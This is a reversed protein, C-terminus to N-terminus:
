RGIRGDLTSQQDEWLESLHTQGFIMGNASIETHYRNFWEISPPHLAVSTTLVNPDQVICGNGYAAAVSTYCSRDLGNVTTAKLAPTSLLEHPAQATVVPDGGRNTRVEDPSLNPPPPLYDM